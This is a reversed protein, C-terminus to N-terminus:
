GRAIEDQPLDLEWYPDLQGEPDPGIILVVFHSM